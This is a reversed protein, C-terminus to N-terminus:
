GACVGVQGCPRLQLMVTPVLPLTAQSLLLVQLMVHVDSQSALHSPDVQAIVAAAFAFILQLSDIDLQMIVAPAPAFILQLSPALQM